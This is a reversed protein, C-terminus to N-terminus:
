QAKFPDVEHNLPNCNDDEMLIDGNPENEVVEVYIELGDELLDLSPLYLRVVKNLPYTPNPNQNPQLPTTGVTATTPMYENGDVYVVFNDAAAVGLNEPNRAPDATYRVPENFTLEIEHEGIVIAKEIVPRFNEDIDLHVEVPTMTGGAVNKVGSVEFLYDGDVSITDYPLKIVAFKRIDGNETWENEESEVYEIDDSTMGMTDLSRDDLVYNSPDKLTDLDIEGGTFEVWIENRDEVWNILEKSTQPVADDPEVVPAPIEEVELTVKESVYKYGHVMYSAHGDGEFWGSPIISEKREYSNNNRGESVYLIHDDPVFFLAHGDKVEGDYFDYAEIDHNNRDAFNYANFKAQDAFYGDPIEITYEVGDILDGNEDVLDKYWTNPDDDNPTLDIVLQQDNFNYAISGPCGYHRGSEGPFNAFENLLCRNSVVATRKVNGVKYSVVIPLLDFDLPLNVLQELLTEDGMNYLETAAEDISNFDFVGYPLNNFEREFNWDYLMGYVPQGAEEWTSPVVDKVDLVIQGDADDIKEWEIMDPEVVVPAHIDKKIFYPDSGDYMREYSEGDMHWIGFGAEVDFVRLTRKLTDQLDYALLQDNKVNVGISKELDVAPVYVDKYWKMENKVKVPMIYGLEVEILGDDGDGNRIEFTGRVDPRNMYVRFVNDHIQKVNLIAPPDIVIPEDGGADILNVDFELVQPDTENGALDTIGTIKITYPHTTARYGDTYLREIAAKIDLDVFSAQEYSDDAAMYFELIGGLNQDNTSAVKQDDVSVEVSYHGHNNIDGVGLGHTNFVPEDFELRINQSYDTLIDLVPVSAASTLQDGHCGQEVRDVQYVDTWSPRDEDKILMAKVATDITRQGNLDRINRIAVEVEKGKTLVDFNAQPGHVDNAMNVLISEEDDTWAQEDFGFPGTWTSYWPIQQIYENAADWSIFQPLFDAENTFRGDEPLYIDVVTKNGVNSAVLEAGLTDLQNSAPLVAGYDATGENIFFYYNSADEASELDVKGNFLVQFHRYDDFLVRDVKVQAPQPNWTVGVATYSKGNYTFTYDHTGATLQKPINATSDDSFTVFISTGAQNAVASKVTLEEVGITVKTGDEKMFFMPNATASNLDAWANYNAVSQPDAAASEYYDSLKGTKQNFDLIVEDPDADIFESGFTSGPANIYGLSYFTDGLHVGNYNRGDLPYAFVSGMSSFMLVLALGLALVKKTKKM